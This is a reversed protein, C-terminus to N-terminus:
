IKARVRVSEPEKWRGILRSARAAVRPGAVFDLGRRVCSAAFGALDGIVGGGLAVVLDNREIRAAIIWEGSGKLSQM